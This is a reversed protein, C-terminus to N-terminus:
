SSSHQQRYLTMRADFGATGSWRQGIAEATEEPTNLNLLLVAALAENDIHCRHLMDLIAGTASENLALNLITALDTAWEALDMLRAVPSIPNRALLSRIYRVREKDEESDSGIGYQIFLNNLIKEPTKATRAFALHISYIEDRHGVWKQIKEFIAELEVAQVCSNDVLNDLGINKSILLNSVKKSLSPNKAVNDKGASVPFANADIIFILTDESARPNEAIAKVIEEEDRDVNRILEDLVDPSTKPDQALSKRASM